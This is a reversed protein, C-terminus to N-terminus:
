VQGILTNWRGQGGHNAWSQPASWNPGLALGWSPILSLPARTRSSPTASSSTLSCSHSPRSTLRTTPRGVGRLASGGAQSPPRQQAWPNLAGTGATTGSSWRLSSPLRTGTLGRSTTQWSTQVVSPKRDLQSLSFGPFAGTHTKAPKLSCIGSSM